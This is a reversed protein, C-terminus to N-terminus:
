KLLAYYWIGFAERIFYNLKMLPLSTRAAIGFGACGQRDAVLEARRLHYESSVIGLETPRVGTKEEILDLSFQINEATNTAEDELWIRSPDIGVALLMDQMCEAETRNEGPGQGGSVICITDPHDALFEAAAAVRDSMSRSPEDGRVQAGLVVIYAPDTDADTRAGSILYIETAAFWLGLIWLGITMLVGLRKSLKPHRKSLAHLGQRAAWVLAFFAIVYAIYDCAVFFVRLIVALFLILTFILWQKKMM